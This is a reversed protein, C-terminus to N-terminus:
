RTVTEFFARIDAAHAAPEEMAVFHGGPNGDPWHVITNDREALRRFLAPGGGYVGSPVAKQGAPWGSRETDYM